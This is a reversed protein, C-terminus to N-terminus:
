KGVKVNYQYMMRRSTRGDATYEKYYAEENASQAWLRFVKVGAELGKQYVKAMLAKGIGMRRKDCRVAVHWIWGIKGEQKFLVAGTISDDTDKCFFVREAKLFTVLEDYTPLDSMVRDFTAEWLSLIHKAQNIGATDVSLAHHWVDIKPYYVLRKVNMCTVFGVEALREMCIVANPAYKDNNSPFDCKLPLFDEYKQVDFHFEKADVALMLSTGAGSKRFFFVGSNEESCYLMHEKCLHPIVDPMLFCNNYFGSRSASGLLREYHSLNIVLM